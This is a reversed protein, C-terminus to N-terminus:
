SAEALRVQTLTAGVLQGDVRPDGTSQLTINVQSHRGGGMGSLAAILARSDSNSLVRGQDGPIFLLEPRNGEGGRYIRDPYVPGGGARPVAGGGPRRVIPDDPSGIQTVKIISEVTKGDLVDLSELLRRVQEDSFGAAEAILRIGQDIKGESSLNRLATEAEIAAEAVALQALAIDEETSKRDKTVEDLKEQAEKYRGVATVANFIPDASRLYETRLDALKRKAEEAANKQDELEDTVEEVAPAMEGASDTAGEMAARMEEIMESDMGMAEAQALVIDTFAQYDEMPLGAAAALAEFQATTLDGHRALHLLGNALAAFADGGSRSVQNINEIAEQMRLNAQAVEDGSLAALSDLAKAAFGVLGASARALSAGFRAQANEAIAASRRQANALSDTTQVFDGATKDSQEMILALAAQAKANLDVEKTTAALGMEVAKARVASDSLMVGFRRLPETEGRLGANIATLVENVDTNFVSAMDAARQTLRITSQAAADANFGMNTLLSGTVTALDHFERKSLGATAAAINGFETIKNTATGFTKEVANISEDLASAADISAKGIELIKRGVQLAIFGKVVGGLGQWAKSWKGSEKGAEAQAKTINKTESAAARAESKYQGAILRLTVALREM